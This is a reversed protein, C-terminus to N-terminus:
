AQVARRWGGSASIDEAGAEAYAECVFGPVETGDELEV